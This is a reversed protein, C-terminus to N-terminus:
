QAYEITVQLTGHTDAEASIFKFSRVMGGNAVRLSEGAALLHGLSTTPTTGGFAFRVSNTECTILAAIPTFAGLQTANLSQATNTSAVSYTAAPRGQVSIVPDLAFAPLAMLLFLLLFFLRKM